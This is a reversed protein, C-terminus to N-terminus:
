SWPGVGGVRDVAIRCVVGPPPDDMPPFKTGPGLYIQALRHLLDAAGGETIRAQGRVVLYEDLGIPNRGGTTMSLTVRPDRAINALKRQGPDLHGSVIEGDEVGVWVVAVQPAGDADITVLHALNGATLAAVAADNLSAPV